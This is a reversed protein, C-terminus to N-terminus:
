KKSNETEPVTENYQDIAKAIDKRTTADKYELQMEDAQNRGYKKGLQTTGSHNTKM